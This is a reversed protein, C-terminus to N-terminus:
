RQGAGFDWKDHTVIIEQIDEESFPIVEFGKIQTIYGSDVVVQDYKTGDSLVISVIQYGMGSEPKNKLYDIWKTGLKIM